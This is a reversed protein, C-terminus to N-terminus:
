GRSVARRKYSVTVPSRRMRAVPVNATETLVLLGQSPSGPKHVSSNQPPPQPVQFVDRRLDATKGHLIADHAAKLEADTATDAFFRFLSAAIYDLREEFALWKRGECEAV